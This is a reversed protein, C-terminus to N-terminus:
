KRLLLLMGIAVVVIGGIVVLQNGSTMLSSGPAPAISAQYQAQAAAQAKAYDLNTKALEIDAWINFGGTVFDKFGDFWNGEAGSATRTYQPSEAM